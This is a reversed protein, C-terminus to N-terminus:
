WPGPGTGTAKDGDRRQLADILHHQDAVHGGVGGVLDLRLALGLEPLLVPALRAVALRRRPLPLQRLQLGTADGDVGKVDLGRLAGRGGLGELDGSGRDARGRRSRWSIGAVLWLGM